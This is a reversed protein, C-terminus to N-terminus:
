PGTVSAHTYIVCGLGAQNAVALFKRLRAFHDLLFTLNQEVPEGLWIEPYIQADMMAAADFRQRLEGESLAAVAVTVASLMAADLWRAPGSGVVLRELESGGHLLFDLPPTGEWASGTLLWHLGHWFEGLPMSVWEGPAMLLPRQLDTLLKYVRRWWPLAERLQRQAELFAETDGPAILQVVL